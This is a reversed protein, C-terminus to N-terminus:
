MSQMQVQGKTREAQSKIAARNKDLDDNASDLRRELEARDTRDDGRRNSAQAAQAKEAAEKAAAERAERGRQAALQQQRQATRFEESDIAAEGYRRAVEVEGGPKSLLDRMHAVKEADIQEEQEQQNPM